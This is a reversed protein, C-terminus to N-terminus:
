PRPTFLEFSNSLTILTLSTAPASLNGALDVARVTYTYTGQVSLGTDTYSTSTLPTSNLKVGDRYINYGAVGTTGAGSDTSATWSLGVSTSTAASNVFSGPVTPATVDANNAATGLYYEEINTRGDGDSDGNRDDAATNLGNSTEWADSMGDKDADTFLPNTGSAGVADVYATASTVGSLTLLRFYSESTNSFALDYDILTGGLYVDWKKGLTEM